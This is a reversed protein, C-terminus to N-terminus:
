SAAKWTMSVCLTNMQINLSSSPYNGMCWGIGCGPSMQLFESHLGVGHVFAEVGVDLVIILEKM